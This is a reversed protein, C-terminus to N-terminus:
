IITDVLLLHNMLSIKKLSGLGPFHKKNYYNFFQEVAYNSYNNVNCWNVLKEIAELYKGAVDSRDINTDSVFHRVFIKNEKEYSLHIAVAMPLMGGESYQSGITQYDSFGIYGEELFFLHEESFFSEEHLLYDSNREQVKFHDDLEILTKNDFNRNYRKNTLGVHIINYSINYDTFFNEVIKQINEFIDIHIFSLNYENMSNSILLKSILEFDIKKHLLIGIQFNFNKEITNKLFIINSEIDSFSGVQPNIIYTFNFNKSLLIKLTSKLTSSEKVPEIIPSIKNSILNENILERIALLEFQKGRLYPQYM